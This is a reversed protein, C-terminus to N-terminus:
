SSSTTAEGRGCCFDAMIVGERSRSTLRRTVMRSAAERETGRRCVNGPAVSMAADVSAGTEPEVSGMLRASAAKISESRGGIRNQSRLRPYTDHPTWSNVQKADSIGKGRFCLKWQFAAIDM